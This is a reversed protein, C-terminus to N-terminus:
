VPGGVLLFQNNQASHLSNLGDAACGGSGQYAQVIIEDPSSKYWRRLSLVSNVLSELPYGGM